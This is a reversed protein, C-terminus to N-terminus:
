LDGNCELNHIIKICYKLDLAEAFLVSLVNKRPYNYFVCNWLTKGNVPFNLDHYIRYFKELSYEHSLYILTRNMNGLKDM